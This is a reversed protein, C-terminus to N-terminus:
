NRSREQKIVSKRGSEVDNFKTKEVPITSLDPYVEPRRTVFSYKIKKKKMKNTLVSEM